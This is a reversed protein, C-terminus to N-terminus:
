NYPRMFVLSAFDLVEQLTMAGSVHALGYTDQIGDLPLPSSNVHCEDQVTNSTSTHAGLSM